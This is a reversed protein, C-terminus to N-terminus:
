PRRGPRRDPVWSYTLPDSDPDTSGTGDLTVTDGREVDQDPGADATPIGNVTITM